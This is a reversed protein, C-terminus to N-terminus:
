GLSAFWSGSRSSRARWALIRTTWVAKGCTDTLAPHTRLADTLALSTHPDEVGQRALVRSDVDHPWPQSGGCHCSSNDTHLDKRTGALVPNGVVVNTVCVLIGDSGDRDRVMRVETHDDARIM